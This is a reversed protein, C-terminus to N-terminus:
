PSESFHHLIEHRRLWADDMGAFGNSCLYHHQTKMQPLLRIGKSWLQMLMKIHSKHFVKKSLQKHLENEVLM